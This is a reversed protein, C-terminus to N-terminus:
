RFQEFRAVGVVFIVAGGVEVTVVDPLPWEAAADQLEQIDPPVLSVRRECHAAFIDLATPLARDELGVLITANGERLFGGSSAITTAYLRARVLAAVVPAADDAQVIAVLLKM